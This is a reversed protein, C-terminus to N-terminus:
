NIKVTFTITRDASGSLLTGLAVSIGATGASGADSDAADTLAAGDLKMTGPQYTTGTPVGDSVVVGEASGSGVIRAVLSYTVLAGPLPRTGGLPDVIAASKTLSVAGIRTIVAALAASRATTAGVVADVGGEGRGAFATGPTGAGTVAAATLRVQSTAADAVGAPLGVLVFVRAAADAALAPTAAGPALPTDVGPDYTGNDNSDVVIGQVTPTFPNGAVAAEATLAFAEPGNGSNTVAYPLAATGAAIPVPASALGAVAVDLLEDVRLSVKNSQVSATGSGNSYSATAVNEIVTGAPVGTAGAPPACLPALLGAPLLATRLLTRSM